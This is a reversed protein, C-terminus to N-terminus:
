DEHCAKHFGVNDRNTSLFQWSPQHGWLLSLSLEGGLWAQQRQFIGPLSQVRFPFICPPPNSRLLSTTHNGQAHGERHGSPPIPFTSQIARSLHLWFYEGLTLQFRATWGAWLAFVRQLGTNGRLLEHNPKGPPLSDAQWHLLCLNSGRDSFIRCAASCCISLRHELAPSGCSSLGVAQARCCSSGGFSVGACWAYREGCSSFFGAYCRLGLM